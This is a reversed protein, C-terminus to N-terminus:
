ISVIASSCWSKPIPPSASNVKPQFSAFFIASSPTRERMVTLDVGPQESRAATVTVHVFDTGTDLYPVSYVGLLQNKLSVQVTLDTNTVVQHNYTVFAIELGSGTGLYPRPFEAQPVEAAAETCLQFSFGNGHFPRSGFTIVWPSCTSRRLRLKGGTCIRPDVENVVFLGTQGNQTDFQLCTGTGNPAGGNPSTAASGYLVGPLTQSPDFDTALSGAKSRPVLFTVSLAFIAILRELRYFRARNAHHKRQPNQCAQFSHIPSKM